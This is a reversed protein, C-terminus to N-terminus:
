RGPWPIDGTPTRRSPHSKNNRHQGKDDPNDMRPQILSQFFVLLLRTLLIIHITWIAEPINKSNGSGRKVLWIIM